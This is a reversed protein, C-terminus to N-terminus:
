YRFSFFVQSELKKSMKLKLTRFVLSYMVATKTTTRTNKRRKSVIKFSIVTCVNCYIQCNKHINIIEINQLENQTYSLPKGIIIKFIIETCTNQGSLNFILTKILLLFIIVTIKLHSM